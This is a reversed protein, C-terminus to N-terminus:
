GERGGFIKTPNMINKPDMFRKVRLMLSYLPGLNEATIPPLTDGLLYQTCGLKTIRTNFDQLFLWIREMEKKDEPYSIGLLPYPDMTNRDHFSFWAPIHEANWFGWDRCSQEWTEYVEPFKLLPNYFYTGQTRQMWPSVSVWVKYGPPGMAHTGLNGLNEGGYEICRQVFKKVHHTLDEEDDGDVSVFAVFHIHEPLEVKGLKGAMYFNWFNLLLIDYVYDRQMWYLAKALPEAQDRRWGYALVKTAAPKPKIRVAVKTVVGMAGGANVFLGM